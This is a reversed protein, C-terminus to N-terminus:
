RLTERDLDVVQEAITALMRFAKEHDRTAEPDDFYTDLVVHTAGLAHLGRFDERVQDITGEGAVRDDPMPAETLRLRIRPCLAPVPRAESAAIARLRPLGTERLWSVRPRIPHWGQGFRVTRRLAADSSGGVWIPPHPSRLPRPTTGVDRFSVFPGEHSAVDSTWCARIAALYDDAMAGRRTFPVGLAEFEQRAWGVGVGFILRGGSFRDVMAAMRATELPHRYPLIIVTTGLEIRRTLGALWTLTTFPDYFPAPYRGQVDPTIALHDSIMVLHYGIAEAVSTWRALSEPSVGPGFNLLNVGIKM